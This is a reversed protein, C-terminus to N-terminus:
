RHGKKRKLESRCFNNTSAVRTSFKTDCTTAHGAAVLTKRGVKKKNM